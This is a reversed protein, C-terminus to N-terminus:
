NDVLKGEAERAPKGGALGDASLCWGRRGLLNMDDLKSVSLKCYQSYGGDCGSMAAREKEGM